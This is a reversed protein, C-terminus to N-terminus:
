DYVVVFLDTCICYFVGLLGGFFFCPFLFFFGFLFRLFCGSLSALFFFFFDQRLLGAFVSASSSM